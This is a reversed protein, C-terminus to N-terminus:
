LNDKKLPCWQGEECLIPEKEKYVLVQKKYIILRLDSSIFLDGKISAFPISKASDNCLSGWVLIREEKFEIKNKWSKIITHRPDNSRCSFNKSFHFYNRGNLMETLSANTPPEASSAGTQAHIETAIPLLFFLIHFFNLKM